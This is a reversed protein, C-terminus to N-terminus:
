EGTGDPKRYNAPNLASGTGIYGQAKLKEVHEPPPFVGRVLYHKNEEWYKTYDTRGDLHASAKVAKTLGDALQQAARIQRDIYMPSASIKLDPSIKKVAKVSGDATMELDMIRGLTANGPDPKGNVYNVDGITQGISKFFQEGFASMYLDQYVPRAQNAADVDFKGAKILEGFEPSAIFDKTLELSVNSSSNLMGMTKMTSSAMKGAADMDGAPDQSRGATVNAITSAVTKYTQRQAAQDNSVITPIHGSTTGMKLDNMLIRNAAQATAMTAAPSNALLKDVGAARLITPDETMTLQSVTIRRKLEDELQKLNKSPDFMDRGLSVLGQLSDQYSKLSAPDGALVGSAANTMGAISREFLMSQEQPTGGRKKINEILTPLYGLADNKMGNVANQADTKLRMDHQKWNFEQTARDEASAKNRADLAKQTDDAIRNLNNLQTEQRVIFDRDSANQEALPPVFVGAKRLGEAADVQSKTDAKNIDQLEEIGTGLRLQTFTDSISKTYETGFDAGQRQYQVTLLKMQNYARREDIGGSLAAEQIGTLKKAYDNRLAMWPKSKDAKGIGSFLNGLGSLDVGQFSPQQVPAIPASGAGQPNSLETARVGFEAM